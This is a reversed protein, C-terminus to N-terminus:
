NLVAQFNLPSLNIAFQSGSHIRLRIFLWGSMSGSFILFSFGSLM